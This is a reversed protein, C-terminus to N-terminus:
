LNIKDKNVTISNEKIEITKFDIDKECLVDNLFTSTEGCHIGTGDFGINNCL